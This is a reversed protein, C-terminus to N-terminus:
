SKSKIIFLEKNNSTMESKLYSVFEEEDGILKPKDLKSDLNYYKDNVKRLSIWHRSKILPITIFGFTYDTPLNMIYGYSEDIQISEKTIERRKDYWIVTLDKSELAKIISNIDYNGIGLVSKHPNIYNSSLESCIVDFQQKTFSKCQMLNNLAHIACYMLSQREHYIASM